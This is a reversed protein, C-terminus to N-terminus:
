PATLALWKLLTDFLVDPDVPKGIHDNMGADLCTQRDEDFANATMALIPTSAYGPLKRIARTADVGNLDPMQMDMLILNYDTRSAMAVARAGDDAVDVNLGIDELLGRTVEQNIPEDEALLIRTGAYMAQLRAEATDGSFTPALPVADTTKGLRATFWFTSGQGVASEVGIEGGMMRALRKSIALGLGTGGYRRTMSDDAQEFAIFLRQQDEARIGIGTDRLDFRLLADAASEEALRIRLTISGQETFKVANSTLNILIQGLRLPDGVFAQRAVDPSMDVRLKLQKAMAKHGILSLLNDLVQGLKFPTQELTLREAEIKSIDLVDNIVHLLHQSAQDAKLLYDRLKPDTSKRLALGTMGMIGNLPTRLEHSMNALFTSKARSAAEAADKAISLAATRENVLAELHHRHQELELETRKRETIDTHIGIMRSARKGADWAVVKGVSEIWKWDGSQTQRRYAMMTPGGNDICAQFAKGVADRDEPHVHALWNAVDSEFENPAYGIMRPYEPSVRVKGTGLDVDFWSQNAAGLALRLREESERLSAEAQKYETIDRAIGYLGIVEKHDNKIPYKRNDVWGKRGEKTLYEQIEHAVTIGAFVQKELRYYIDAFEEPFVDYDTQGLLDTWHEAPSCLAVLTQSAGTFVHNRDKFFIYDDTNEMMATFNVMVCADSMTRKLSKADQLLLDLEVGDSGTEKRYHGRICRIRGNAQRIRVNFVGSDGSNAPSFLVDAIDADHPHIRNKLSVRGSLFDDPSFGLLTEISDTISLVPRCGAMALRVRAEIVANSDTTKM